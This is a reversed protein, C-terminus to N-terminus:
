PMPFRRSGDQMPVPRCSLPRLRLPPFNGMKVIFNKAAGFIGEQNVGTTM